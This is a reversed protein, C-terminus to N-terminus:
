MPGDPATITLHNVKEICDVNAIYIECGDVIISPRGDVVKGVFRSFREAIQKVPSGESRNDFTGM